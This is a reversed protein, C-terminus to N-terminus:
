DVNKWARTPASVTFSYASYYVVYIMENLVVERHAFFLVYLLLVKEELEQIKSSFEYYLPKLKHFIKKTLM